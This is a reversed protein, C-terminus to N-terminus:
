SAPDVAAFLGWRGPVGDLEAEGRDEFALGSGAVLDAVTRSVLVDGPAARAGVRAAIHVALGALDDGRVECEGAHLGARIPLGAGDLALALARACAIATTPRDFRAVFGDGTTNVEVGGYESLLERTIRDHTDLLARWRADGESAARRTSGVLDTFLVTTLIRTPADSLRKGTLFAAVEDLVPAFDGTFFLMEDNGVDVVRAGPIHEALYGIGRNDNRLVLTPVTIAEVEERVDLEKWVHRYLAVAMAPTAAGRALRAVSRIVDPDDGLLPFMAAMAEPDGWGTRFVELLEETEAPTLGHDYGPAQLFRAYTNGLVLARVREAHEVAFRIATPGAESEAFIAPRESGVADLVALLDQSWDEATPLFGDTSRESAGSGRRDFLILRSFSALRKNFAAEPPVDWQFDVHCMGHHYVLDIPGDGIVQYAVEAGGPTVYRTDPRRM